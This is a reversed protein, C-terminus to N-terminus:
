VPRGYDLEALVAGEELERVIDLITTTQEIRNLSAQSEGLKQPLQALPDPDSKLYGIFELFDQAKEAVEKATGAAAILTAPAIAHATTAFFIAMLGVCLGRFLIRIHTTHTPM